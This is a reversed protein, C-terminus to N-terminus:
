KKRITTAVYGVLEDIENENLRYKGDRISYYKVVEKEVKRRALFLYHGSRLLVDEIPKPPRDNAILLIDFPTYKPMYNDSNLSIGFFVKSKCPEQCNSIDLRTYDTTIKLNGDAADLKMISVFRKGNERKFNNIYRIYWRVLYLDNEPLNRCISMSERAVEDITNAGVLEDISINLARSLKIATSLKVDQPNGYLITILTSFPVGSAESVDRITIDKDDIYLFLNRKFASPFDNKDASLNKSIELLKKQKIM